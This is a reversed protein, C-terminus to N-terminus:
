RLASGATATSELNMRRALEPFRPHRHLNRYSPSMLWFARASRHEIVREAYRFAQEVDGLASYLAALMAPLQAWGSRSELEAIKRRAPAHDGLMASVGATVCSVTDDQPALVLAREAWERAQATQGLATYANATMTLAPWYAADIELAKKTHEIVSEFKGEFYYTESITFLIFPSLPDIELVRRYMARTEHLLGRPRLFWYGYHLLVDASGPALEMARAFGQEGGVWDYEYAARITSMVAHAAGHTDDLALAKQAAQRAAEVVAGPESRDLAWESIHYTALDAYADAFDPDLAIAEEYSKRAMQWSAPTFRFRHHRGRLLATYAEINPTHRECCPKEGCLGVHERLANVIASSIDDQITFIDTLERDYRESWLQYGEAANVLQATVRVRNGSKRVSGELVTEVNLTRAISRVDQEHGRLAFVSTRATVRVGPVKALANITEDTLGDAFYENERDASLSAFPLVAISAACREVAPTGTGSTSGSLKAAVTELSSRVDAMSGFRRSPDKELCRTVLHDLEPPVRAVRSPLVPHDRLIALMTSLGSDSRFAARGTLMEYLVSGFSFIDSRHDVFKGEAQEPSMYAASGLVTGEATADREPGQSRTADIGLGRRDSLKALGFDLVKALGGNTVMINTPKLDRHIIGASHAAHLASAVQIGYAVADRPPLGSTGIVADLTRGAIFEMAIFDVGGEAGADYIVVIGPHALSSATLAEQLFRQRRDPRGMPDPSLLKLAVDRQLRPDRARYVVGMGGSGAVDLIQYRGFKDGPDLV